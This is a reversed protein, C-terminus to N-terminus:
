RPSFKVAALTEKILPVTVKRKMVLSQSALEQFLEFLQDFATNQHNKVYDIVAQDLPIGCAEFQQKFCDLADDGSLPEVHLTLGSTLRSRLDPLQWGESRAACNAAVVLHCDAARCRNYVNFLAVEGDSVQQLAQVDDLLLFSLGGPLQDLVDGDALAVADLLLHAVSDQDLQDALAQMLHTKGSYREGWLYVFQPLSQHDSLTKVLANNGTFRAFTRPLEHALNLPVQPQTM